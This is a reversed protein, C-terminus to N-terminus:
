EKLVPRRRKYKRVLCSRFKELKWKYLSWAGGEVNQECCKFILKLVINLSQEKTNLIKQIKM